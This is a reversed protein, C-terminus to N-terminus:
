HTFRLLMMFIITEFSFSNKSIFNASVCSTSFYRCFQNGPNSEHRRRKAQEEPSPTTENIYLFSIPTPWNTCSLSLSEHSVEASVKPMTSIPLFIASVHSSHPESTAFFSFKKSV